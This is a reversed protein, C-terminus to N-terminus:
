RSRHVTTAQQYFRCANCDNYKQAFAGQVKGRCYTGATQWCRSGPTGYCPCNKKGCHMEEWCNLLLPNAFRVSFDEQKAVQLILTSINKLANNLKERNEEIERNTTELQQQVLRQETIDQLSVVKGSFGISDEQYTYISLAYEKGSSVHRLDNRNEFLAGAPLAFLEELLKRWNRGLVEIYSTGSLAALAKNMRIIADNDDILIIIDKICDISMEWQRKAVEVFNFLKVLAEHKERLEHQTQELLQKEQLLAHELIKTETIDRIIAAFYRHEKEEWSSLSLEIPFATGNKHQGILELTKGVLTFRKTRDAEAMRVPHNKRFSEPMLITIPQGLLEDPAHGFVKAVAANCEVVIGLADTVVLADPTSQLLNKYREESFRLQDFLISYSTVDRIVEVVETVVGQDDIVPVATIEVVEEFGNHGPHHHIVKQPLGTAFVERVPCFENNEYCPTSTNHSFEYCYKRNEKDDSKFQERAARNMFSVRYQSDIVLLPALMTGVMTELFQKSVFDKM